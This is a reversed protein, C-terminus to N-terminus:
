IDLKLMYLKTVNYYPLHMSLHSVVVELASQVLKIGDASDLNVVVWISTSADQPSQDKM